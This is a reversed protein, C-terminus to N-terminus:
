LVLLKRTTVEEATEVRLFYLGKGFDSLDLSKINSPYDALRSGKSDYLEMSRLKSPQEMDLFFRGDSPNPYITLTTQLSASEITSTTSCADYQLIGVGTWNSFPPAFLTFIYGLYVENEYIGLGWTGRNDASTGFTDCLIPNTPDEVSIVLLDSKGAAVFIRDCDASYEIESAHGPAGAWENLANTADPWSDPKWWGIQRINAPDSIDLIEVGYYDITVYALDGNVVVNNYATAFGILNAFCYKGIEKPNEKDALDIIRLGGRDHCVYALDNQIALGRTNFKASDIGSPPIPHPFTFDPNIISVFQINQKDTVDLIVLGDEMAGLYAYNGAAVVVGSGTDSGPLIWYDTLVPSRPATVDIIAIGSQQENLGLHNGVAAYLYNGQQHLNMVHLEEFSSTPIRIALEPNELDAIDLVKIGGEKSAVYLYDRGQADRKATLVNETFISSFESQQEINMSSCQALLAAPISFYFLSLSLLTLQVITKM